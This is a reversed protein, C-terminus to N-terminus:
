LSTFVVKLTLEKMQPHNTTFTIKAAEDPSKIMPPLGAPIEVTLKVQKGNMMPRSFSAKFESPECVPDSVELDETMGMPVIIVSFTKGKAAEFDSLVLTSEKPVIKANNPAIFAFPPPRTGTVNVTLEKDDPVDTQLQLHESYSGAKGETTVEVAVKYVGRLWMASDDEQNMDTSAKATELEGRLHTILQKREDPGVPLITVKLAPSSGDHGVIKFDDLMNSMVYGEVTGPNEKSTTGATWDGPPFTRLKQGVIGRIVLSVQSQKSDNTHLQASHEFRINPNRIHWNLKINTSGGPPVSGTEPTAATCQCTRKGIKFELPAEGENKITFEHEGKSDIQLMGFNYVSKEIVMKPQPGKESPQPMGAEVKPKEVVVANGSSRGLAAVIVAAVVLSAVAAILAGPRM